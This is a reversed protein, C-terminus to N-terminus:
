VSAAAKTQTVRTMRLVSLKMVRSHVVKFVAPEGFAGASVEEAIAPHAQSRDCEIRHETLQLGFVRGENMRGVRHPRAGRRERALGLIHNEKVHCACRALQFEEFVFGPEALKVALNRGLTQHFAFAEGKELAVFREESVGSREFGIALAPHRQTILDRMVALDDVLDDPQASHAGIDEVVAGGLEEHVGSKLSRSAGAHTRPHGVSQPALGVAQRSEDNQLAARAARPGAIREPGAAKKRSGKLANGEPALAVRNQM